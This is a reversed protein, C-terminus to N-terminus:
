ALDPEAAAFEADPDHTEHLTQHPAEHAHEVSAAADAFFDQEELDAALDPELTAADHGAPRDFDQSASEADSYQDADDAEAQAQADDSGAYTTETEAQPEADFEDAPLSEIARTLATRIAALQQPLSADVAGLDTECVCSGRERRADTSIQMSVSRGTERWERAVADFAAAAAAFDDPHVCVKVPSGDAVIRDITKAAQRFLAAPDATSVIQEVALAVLQALRDRQREGISPGEALMQLSREHWDVLAQEWGAEYGMHTAGTYNVQAQMILEDAEAQAADVIAQAQKRADDLLAECRRNLDAYASDIEVLTALDEARVIDDNLGIGEGHADPNRLWIVM